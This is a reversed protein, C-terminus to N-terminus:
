KVDFVDETYSLLTSVNEISKSIDELNFIQHFSIMKAGNKDESYRFGMSNNDLVELKNILLKLDELLKNDEIGKFKELNKTKLNKKANLYHDLFASHLKKLDHTKSIDKILNQSGSIKYLKKINSKLELELFQRVMFLAPLVIHDQYQNSNYLIKFANIYHLAIRLNNESAQGIFSEKRSKM